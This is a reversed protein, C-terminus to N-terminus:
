VCSVGGKRLYHMYAKVFASYKEKSMYITEGTCLQIFDNGYEAVYALNVLYGRHCRFFTGGLQEELENMTAYIEIVERITHIDVKRRQSEIYYIDKVYMMVKRNRTRILLKKTHAQDRQRVDGVAREFVDALKRESVPKLLYHFASVDFADFVYDPIATIFILVVDAKRRRLERATGIGDMGGLQIDLFLIDWSSPDALLEEGSAFEGTVCDPMRKKVMEQIQERIQREDDCIAINLRSM